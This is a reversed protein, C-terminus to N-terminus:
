FDEQARTFIFTSGLAVARGILVDDDLYTLQYSGGASGFREGLGAQPWAVRWM